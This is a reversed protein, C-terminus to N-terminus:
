AQARGQRLRRKLRRSWALAAAGGLLPLPAPVAELRLFRGSAVTGAPGSLIVPDILNSVTPTRYSLFEQLTDPGHLFLEQFSFDTGPQSVDLLLQRTAYVPEYLTSNYLNFFVDTIPSGPTTNRIELTIHENICPSIDCPPNQPPPPQNVDVVRAFDGNLEGYTFTLGALEAAAPGSNDLRFQLFRFPNSFTGFTTLGKQGVQNILGNEIVVHNTDLADGNLIFDVFYRSHRPIGSLSSGYDLEILGRYHLDAALSPLPTSALLGLGASLAGSLLRSVIRSTM